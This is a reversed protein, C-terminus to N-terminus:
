TARRATASVAPGRAGDPGLGIVTVTVGDRFGIVPLSGAKVRASVVRQLHRGDTAVVRM